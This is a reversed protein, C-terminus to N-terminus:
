VIKEHRRLVGLIDGVSQMGQMEEETLIIDHDSDLSAMLTLIGLSDWASIDDRRTEASLGGPSEEFLEALWFVAEDQTM